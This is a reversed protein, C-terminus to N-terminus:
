PSAGSLARGHERAVRTKSIKVGPGRSYDLSFCFERRRGYFVCWRSRPWRQLLHVPRARRRTRGSDVASQREVIGTGRWNARVVGGPSILLPLFLPSGVGHTDECCGQLFIATGDAVAGPRFVVRYDRAVACWSGDGGGGGGGGGSADALLGSVPRLLAPPADRSYGTAFIVADFAAGVSTSEEGTYMHRLRLRVRGGDGGEALVGVVDSLPFIRHAWAREDPTALRQAYLSACLEDLLPLRVVSYNTARDARIAAHRAPAPLAYLADIRAGPDFIENVFPSDDSPRLAAGRIFLATSTHASMSAGPPPALRAHLDAFIEAASQGGGVVAIRRPGAAAATGPTALLSPLAAMYHASHVIRSHPAVGPPFAPKGGVAVVVNRARFRTTGGNDGDGSGYFYRTLVDWARVPGAGALGRDGPPVPAVALVDTRYRVLPAFHRACWCLYDHFEARLPLLTGLNCFAALRGHAHLYNVFTFASTPDRPTALDKLFSIQMRAGPLLMGAHWSFEPQRELFLVRPPWRQPPVSALPPSRALLSADHLAIAIALAAPGFGVVVLDYEGDDEDADSADDPPTSPSSPDDTGAGSGSGSCEGAYGANPNHHGYHGYHDHPDHGHGHRDHGHSGM